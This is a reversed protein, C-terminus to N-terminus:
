SIIAWADTIPYYTPSTGLSGRHRMNGNYKMEVVIGILMGYAYRKKQEVTPNDPIDPNDFQPWGGDEHHCLIPDRGTSQGESGRATFDSCNFFLQKFYFRQLFCDGKYCTYSDELLITGSDDYFAIFDSIRYLPNTYLGTEWLLLDFAGGINKPTPDNEYM